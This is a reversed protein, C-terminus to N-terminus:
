SENIKEESDVYRLDKVKMPTMEPYWISRTKMTMRHKILEAFEAMDEKNRFHVSITKWPTQNEQSFEPMGEWEKWERRFQKRDGFIGIDHKKKM